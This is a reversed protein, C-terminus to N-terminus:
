RLGGKGDVDQVYGAQKDFACRSMKGRKVRKMMRAEEDMEATDAEDMKSEVKARAEGEAAQRQLLGAKRKAKKQSKTTKKSKQRLAERREQRNDVADKIEAQRKKEKSEDRYAIDRVVVAGDKEFDLNARHKRFEQFRPLRVLSFSRAVSSVDLENFPLLYGCRHEKYARLYSLFAKEAVDLVARDALLAARMTEVQRGCMEVDLCEHRSPGDAAEGEDDSYEDRLVEGSFLFPVVPCRRVRLFESYADEHPALYILSTGLRGLRATRGVRHVYADPDQPPDFQVVYDVDPIDLGRAAVDTCVLLANSSAAFATLARTRKTQTMKGHLAVVTRLGNGEGAAQRGPQYRSLNGRGLNGGVNDVLAGLPLCAFYDVCACTLLYVIFKKDPNAALVRAFHHIKHEHRMVAYYCTLSSPIVRRGLLAAPASKPVDEKAAKAASPDSADESKGTCTITRKAKLSDRDCDTADISDERSSPVAAALPKVRVAVRVPNRLGARALEDVQETQTASYLGTRRQKPLRTLIATLTVAFGMDLLRDAEDMILLEVTRCNLANANIAANLRGPTAIVVRTDAAHRPGPGAGHKASEGGILPVPVINGALIAFLATAAAHVQAALERTPVIILAKVDPVAACARTSPNYLLMQAIPVLFSLTKGSGTEADVAVDRSTLLPPIAAAQVPTMNPYNLENLAAIIQPDIAAGELASWPGATAMRCTNHRSDGRAKPCYTSPQSFSHTLASGRWECSHESTLARAPSLVGVNWNYGFARRHTYSVVLCCRM